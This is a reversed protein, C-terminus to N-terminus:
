VTPAAKSIIASAENPNLLKKDLDIQYGAEDNNPNEDLMPGYKLDEIAEQAKLEQKAPIGLEADALIVANKNKLSEEPDKTQGELVESQTEISPLAEAHELGNKEKEDSKQVTQPQMISQIYKMLYSEEMDGAHLICFSALFYYFIAMM